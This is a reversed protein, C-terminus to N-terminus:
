VLTSSLWSFGALENVNRAGSSAFSTVANELGYADPGRRSHTPLGAESSRKLDASPVTIVRLLRRPLGTNRSKQALQHPGHLAQNGIQQLEIVFGRWFAHHPHPDIIVFVRLRRGLEHDLIMNRPLIIM